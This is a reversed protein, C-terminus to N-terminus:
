QQPEQDAANMGDILFQMVNRAALLASRRVDTECAMLAQRATAGEPRPCGSVSELIICALEDQPIHVVHGRTTMRAIKEGM